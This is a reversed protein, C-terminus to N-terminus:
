NCGPCTHIVEHIFKDCDLCFVKQCLTCKLCRQRLRTSCGFCKSDPSGELEVTTEEYVKVPFLHHYSRALHPASILKLGCTSCDSPISCIKSNCRPCIFGYKKVTDHCSCLEYTNLREPFGMYVLSAPVNRYLPPPQLFEFLLDKCHDENLPVNHVGNTWKALMKFIHVEAALSVVSVRIKHEQLIPAFDNIDAPDRTMLSGWIVLVERSSHMPTSGLEVAALEIANLISGEGKLVSSDSIAGLAQNLVSIDSCLGVNVSAYGDRTIILGVSSIPNQDYFEVLFQKLLSLSLELFSPKLDRCSMNSSLDLIIILHRLIGRQIPVNQRERRKKWQQQQYLLSTNIQGEKDEQIIEWSRKYKDEWSYNNQQDDEM